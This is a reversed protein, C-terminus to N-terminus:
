RIGRGSRTVAAVHEVPVSRRRTKPRELSGGSPLGFKTSRWRRKRASGCWPRRCWRTASNGCRESRLSSYAAAYGQRASLAQVSAGYNVDMFESPILWGALGGDTMWAHSLGLFDAICRRGSREIEVGCRRRRPCVQLRQEGAGPNSVIHHHGCSYPSSRCILLNFKESDPQVEAQTFDALHVDLGTEGWLKAGAGRLALRDRLGYWCDSAVKGLRADLLTQISRGPESLRILSAFKQARELIRRQMDFFTLSGARDAYCVAVWGIGNRRSRRRTWGRKCRWGVGRLNQQRKAKGDLAAGRSRRYPTGVGLDAIGEQPRMVRM